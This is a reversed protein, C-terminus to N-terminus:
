GRALGARVGRMIAESAVEVRPALEGLAAEIAGAEAPTAALRPRHAIARVIRQAAVRPEALDTPLGVDRLRVLLRGWRTALEADGGALAEPLAVELAVQYHQPAGARALVGDLLLEVGLHAAARMPGRSVGRAALALGLDRMLGSVAPLVHFVADTAHHLAVGRALEDPLVGLEGGGAMGRLDPLMAGLALAGPAMSPSWAAVVAHGFFNV